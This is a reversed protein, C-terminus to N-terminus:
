ASVASRRRAAFGVMGFGAILMAWTSPEPVAATIVRFSDGPTSATLLDVTLTNGSFTVLDGLGLGRLLPSGYSTGAAGLLTDTADLRTRTFIVGLIPADFTVSGLVSRPIVGAPDFLVMHSSVQTGAPIAGTGAAISGLYVTLDSNLLVGQKENFAVLDLAQLGNAAVTAPAPIIKFVGGNSAAYGGTVAGGTVGAMAPQAAAALALAAVASFIRTGQM